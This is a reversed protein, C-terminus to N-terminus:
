PQSIDLGDQHYLAEIISCEQLKALFLIGIAGRFGLGTKHIGFAYHFFEKPRKVHLIIAEQGINDIEIIGKALLTKQDLSGVELIQKLAKSSYAKSIMTLLSSDQVTSKSMDRIEDSHARTWTYHSASASQSQGNILPDFLISFPPENVIAKDFNHRSRVNEWLDTLRDFAEKEGIRNKVSIPLNDLASDINQIQESLTQREKVLETARGCLVSLATNAVLQLRSRQVAQIAIAAEDNDSMESLALDSAIGAEDIYQLISNVGPLGELESM